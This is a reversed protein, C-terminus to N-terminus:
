GVLVLEDEVIELLNKKPVKVIKKPKKVVIVNRKKPTEGILLELLPAENDSTVATPTTRAASAYFENLERDVKSRGGVHRLMSTADAFVPSSEMEEQEEIEESTTSFNRRRGQPSSFSSDDTGFRKWYLHAPVIQCKGCVFFLIRLARTILLAVGAATAASVAVLQIAEVTESVSQPIELKDIDIYYETLHLVTISVVLSCVELVCFLFNQFPVIM